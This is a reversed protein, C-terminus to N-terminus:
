AVQKYHNLVRRDINVASGIYIRESYMQSQIQYIDSIKVM